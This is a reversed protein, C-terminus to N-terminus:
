AKKNIKIIEDDEILDTTKNDNMILECVEGVKLDEDIVIWANGNEDIITIESTTENVDTVVCNNLAYISVSSCSTLVIISLLVLVIKKM